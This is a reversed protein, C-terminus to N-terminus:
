KNKEVAKKMDKVKPTQKGYETPVQLDFELNRVAGVTLKGKQYEYICLRQSASDVVFLTDRGQGSTGTGTVASMTGAGGAAQAYAKPLANTSNLVLAGALAVCAGFLFAIATRSNNQTM